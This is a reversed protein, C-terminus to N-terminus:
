PSRIVNKCEALSSINSYNKGLTAISLDPHSVVSVPAFVGYTDQDTGAILHFEVGDRARFHFVQAVVCAPRSLLSGQSFPPSVCQLSSHADCGSDFNSFQYSVLRLDSLSMTAGSKPDIAISDLKYERCFDVEGEGILEDVHASFVSCIAGLASYDDGIGSGIDSMLTDKSIYLLASRHGLASLRSSDVAIDILDFRVKGTAELLPEQGDREPARGTYVTQAEVGHATPVYIVQSQGDGL